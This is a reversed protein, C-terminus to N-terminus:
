PKLDRPQQPVPSLSTSSSSSLPLSIYQSTHFAVEKHIKTRCGRRRLKRLEVGPSGGGRLIVGMHM